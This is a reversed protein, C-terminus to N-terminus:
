AMLAKKEQMRGATDILLVDMKTIQAEKVAGVAINVPDDRAGKKYIPLELARAHM